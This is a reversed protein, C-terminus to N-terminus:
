SVQKHTDFMALFFDGPPMETELVQRTLDIKKTIEVSKMELEDKISLNPKTNNTTVSKLEKEAAADKAEKVAKTTIDVMSKTPNLGFMNMEKLLSVLHAVSGSKWYSRFLITYDQETTSHNMTLMMLQITRVNMPEGRLAEREAVAQFHGPQYEQLNQCMKSVTERFTPESLAVSLNKAFSKDDGALGSYKRTLTEREKQFEENRQKTEKERYSWFDFDNGTIVSTDVSYCPNAAFNATSAAYSRQYLSIAPRTSRSFASQLVQRAPTRFMATCFVGM